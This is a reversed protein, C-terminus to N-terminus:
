RLVSRKRLEGTVLPIGYCGGSLIGPSPPSFASPSAVRERDGFQITKSTRDRPEHSQRQARRVSPCAVDAARRIARGVRDAPQQEGDTVASRAERFRSIAAVLRCVPTGRRLPLNHGDLWRALM